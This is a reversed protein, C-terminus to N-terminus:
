RENKKPATGVVYSDRASASRVVMVPARHQIVGPVTHVEGTRVNRVVLAQDYTVSPVTMPIAGNTGDELVVPVTTIPAHYEVHMLEDGLVRATSDFKMVRGDVEATMAPVTMPIERVPAAQSATLLMVIAILTNM